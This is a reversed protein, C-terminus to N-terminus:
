MKTEKERKMPNNSVESFIVVVVVVCLELFFILNLLFM